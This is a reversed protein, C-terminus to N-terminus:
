RDVKGPLLFPYGRRQITRQWWRDARRLRQLVEPMVDDSRCYRSIEKDSIPPDIVRNATEQFTPIVSDIQKKKLNDILDFLAARAEYCHSLIEPLLFRRVGPRLFAPLSALFLDTDLTENGTNLRILPTTVDLYVSENDM